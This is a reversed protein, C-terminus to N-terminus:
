WPYAEYRGMVKWYARWDGSVVPKRLSMSSREKSIYSWADVTSGDELTATVIKRDYLNYDGSPYFGELRDCDRIVSTFYKEPIYILQGVITDDGDIVMPFMGASYMKGKITAPKVDDHRGRLLGFYNGFGTMLTGYVFLPLIKTYDVTGKKRRAM